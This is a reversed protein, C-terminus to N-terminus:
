SVQGQRFLQQLAWRDLRLCLCRVTSPQVTISTFMWLEGGVHEAAGAGGPLWTARSSEGGAVQMERVHRGRGEGKGVGGAAGRGAGGGGPSM